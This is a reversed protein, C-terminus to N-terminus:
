KHFAKAVKLFLQQLGNATATASVSFGPLWNAISFYTLVMILLSMKLLSAPWHSSDKSLIDSM